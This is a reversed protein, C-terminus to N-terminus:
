VKNGGPEKAVGIIRVPELMCELYLVPFGNFQILTYSLNGASNAKINIGIYHYTEFIKKFITLLTESVNATAGIELIKNGPSSM